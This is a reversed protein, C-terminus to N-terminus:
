ILAAIPAASGIFPRIRPDTNTNIGLLRYLTAALELPYVPVTAPYAAHADSSGIRPLGHEVAFAVARAHGYRGIATPNFTEIADPHVLPNDDTLLARLVWGQASLHLPLM